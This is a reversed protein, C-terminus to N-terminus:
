LAQAIGPRAPNGARTQERVVELYEKQLAEDGAGAAAMAAGLLANLRNPSGELVVQYHELSGQFDGTQLLMDAYLERAPLVEGPTVPHKDVGDERDAASEALALAEAENGEALLIWARVVDVHVQVQEKWYPLTTSPLGALLGEIVQLEQRAKELQGSRAAGLGRAFYLISQAWGFNEWDFDEERILQMESADEWERRELAFRAPSAAYAFAVKFNETDTKEIGTLRDLLARAEDDRATQLLAYMLYDISHIGEDYHGPLHARETYDIASRTSDHNSSISRDWLGLRTFIHSPMHQAHTSDPAADAYTTAADLALHALGPFDYSHILYHLVGPHDPHSARVWNLLAASKFQHAYSKDHPDASSLLSLAYFVAADPDELHDAYVDAMKLEFAEARQRHTTTDISSFFAKLADLYAAERPTAELGNTRDLLAAGAALDQESPPAWLPHWLSMAAGWYAIACDPHQEILRGFIRKTEPYEFCHLLALGRRIEPQAEPACSNEFRIPNKAASALGALLTLAVCGALRKAPGPRRINGASNARRPHRYDDHSRRNLLAGEM